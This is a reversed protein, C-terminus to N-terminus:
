KGGGRAQIASSANPSPPPTSKGKLLGLSIPAGYLFQCCPSLGGLITRVFFLPKLAPLCCLALSRPPRPPPPAPRSLDGRRAIGAGGVEWLLSGGKKGAPPQSSHHTQHGLAKYVVVPLCPGTATLLFAKERRRM